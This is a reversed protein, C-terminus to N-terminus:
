ACTMMQLLPREEYHFHVSDGKRFNHRRLDVIIFAFSQWLMVAYGLAAPLNYWDTTECHLKRGNRWVRVTVPAVISHALVSQRDNDCRPDYDLDCLVMTLEDPPEGSLLKELGAPQVVAHDWLSLDTKM